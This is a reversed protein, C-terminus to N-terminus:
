LGFYKSLKKVQKENVFKIGGEKARCAPCETISEDDYHIVEPREPYLCKACVPFTEPGFLLERLWKMSEEIEKVWVRRKDGL